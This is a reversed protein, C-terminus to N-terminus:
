FNFGVNLSGRVNTASPTFKVTNAIGGQGDYEMFFKTSKSVPLKIGIGLALGADTSHFASKLDTGPSIQYSASTLVGIYPGFNLYWNRTSGFHWNAMVPVTIYNLNFKVNNYTTFATLTSSSLPNSSVTVTPEMWGKQDYIVKVKIGWRNSFYHEGALYFNFGTKSGSYDDQDSSYMSSRNIGGGIGFENKSQAQTIAYIGMVM